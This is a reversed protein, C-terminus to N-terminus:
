GVTPRFIRVWGGYDNTFAVERGTQDGPTPAAFEMGLENMTAEAIWGSGLSMAVHSNSILIDGPQLGYWPTGTIDRFSNNAYTLIWAFSAFNVGVGYNCRIQHRVAIDRMNCVGALEYAMAIYTSCSYDGYMGWRAYKLDYNDPTQEGICGYGHRSDMAIARVWAEVRKTPSAWNKLVHETLNDYIYWQGRISEPQSNVAALAGSYSSYKGLRNYNNDYYYNSTVSYRASDSGPWVQRHAYQGQSPAVKAATEDSVAAQGGLLTMARVKQHTELYWAAQHENVPAALLIPAGSICALPGGALADPFNYGNALMVQTTEESSYFEAAIFASTSFRDPGAVRKVEKGTVEKVQNKFSSTMVAKGGIIYIESFDNEELFAIQDETLSNGDSLMINGPVASASVADPYNWGYCILLRDAQDDQNRVAAMEELVLNNTEFRDNGALRKVEYDALQEEWAASVAKTGGLIYITSGEVLKEKIFGLQSNLASDNVLLLPYGMAVSLSGASLADPYNDGSVLIMGNIGTTNNFKEYRAIYEGALRRSTEYRDYGWIRQLASVDPMGTVNAQNLEEQVEASALNLEAEVLQYAQEWETDEVPETEDAIYEEIEPFPGEYTYTGDAYTCISGGQVALAAGLVLATAKGFFYGKRM